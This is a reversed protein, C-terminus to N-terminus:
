GIMWLAVTAATIALTTAPLWLKLYRATTLVRAKSGARDLAILTAVSGHPTALAGVSLGTLAAYAGLGRMSLLSPLVASAPLNNAM